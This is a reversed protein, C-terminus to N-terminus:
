HLVDDATRPYPPPLEKVSEVRFIGDDSAEGAVEVYKLHYQRLLEHNFPDDAQHRVWDIASDAQVLCPYFRESKSGCHRLLFVIYGTKVTNM